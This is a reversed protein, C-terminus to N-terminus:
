TGTDSWNSSFMWATATINTLHDLAYNHGRLKHSQANIHFNTYHSGYQM